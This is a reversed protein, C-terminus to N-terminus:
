SCSKIYSVAGSGHCDLVAFRFMSLGLKEACGLLFAKLTWSQGSNRDAGRGMTGKLVWFQVGVSSNGVCVFDCGRAIYINCRRGPFDRCEM